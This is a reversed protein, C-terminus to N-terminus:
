HLFYKLSSVAQMPTLSAKRLNISFPKMFNKSSIDLESFFLNKCLSTCYKRGHLIWNLGSEADVGIRTTNSALLQVELLFSLLPPRQRLSRTQLPDMSVKSRILTIRLNIIPRTARTASIELIYLWNLKSGSYQFKCLTRMLSSKFGSPGM